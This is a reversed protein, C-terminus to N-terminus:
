IGIINIIFFLCVLALAAGGITFAISKWKLSDLVGKEPKDSIYFISGGKQMMINEENRASSRVFPNDGATGLIYLRDKPAIHREVYRMTKNIGFIGEFRLNNKKMFNVVEIPPDKGWTSVYSFDAPIDIEAGEPNVLVSGTSDKVYFNKRYEDKRITVWYTNKGNSRQEEISYNYYICDKNTFPSKVVHSKIGAAEGCIEAFGMALSRIKSTPTNEILRKMNFMRFGTFFLFIGAALGIIVLVLIDTPMM